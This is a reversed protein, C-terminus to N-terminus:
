KQYGAGQRNKGGSVAERLALILTLLIGGVFSAQFAIKRRCGLTGVFGVGGFRLFLQFVGGNLSLLARGRM